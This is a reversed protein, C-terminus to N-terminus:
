GIVCGFSKHEDARTIIAGPAALLRVVPALAERALILSILAALAHPLQIHAARADQVQFLAPVSRARLLTALVAVGQPLRALAGPLGSWRWPHVPCSAHPRFIPFKRSPFCAV